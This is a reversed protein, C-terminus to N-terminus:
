GSIHVSVREKYKSFTSCVKKEIQKAVREENLVPQRLADVLRHWTPPASDSATDLWKTVVKLLSERPSLRQSEIDTIDAQDVELCTAVLMWKSAVDSLENVVASLDHKGLVVHRPLGVQSGNASRSSASSFTTTIFM